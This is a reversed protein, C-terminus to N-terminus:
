ESAPGSAVLAQLYLGSFPFPNFFVAQNFVEIDQIFHYLSTSPALRSM